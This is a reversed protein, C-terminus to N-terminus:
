GDFRTVEVFGAKGKRVVALIRGNQWISLDTGHYGAEPAVEYWAPFSEDFHELVDGIVSDLTASEAPRAIGVPSTRKDWPGWGYRSYEAVEEALGPTARVVAFRTELHERFDGPRRGKASSEVTPRM